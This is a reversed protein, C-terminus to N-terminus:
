EYVIEININQGDYTVNKINDKFLIIYPHAPIDTRMPNTVQSLWNDSIDTHFNESAKNKRDFSLSDISPNKLLIQRTEADFDLEGSIQAWGMESIAIDQKARHYYAQIKVKLALRETNVFIVEPATVLLNGTNLELGVPFLNSAISTALAQSVPVVSNIASFAPNRLLTSAIITILAFVSLFLTRKM